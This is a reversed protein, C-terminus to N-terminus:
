LDIYFKINYIFYYYVKKEGSRYIICNRENFGLSKDKLYNMDEEYSQPFKALCAKGIENLKQLMIKENEISISPMRLKRRTFKCTTVNSIQPILYKCLLSLDGEYQIFRLYGFFKDDKKIYAKYDEFVKFTKISNGLTNGIM